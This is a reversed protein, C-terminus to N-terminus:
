CNKQALGVGTQFSSFVQLGQVCTWGVAFDFQDNRENAVLVKGCM